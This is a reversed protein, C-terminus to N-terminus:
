RYGMVLQLLKKRYYLSLYVVGFYVRAQPVLIWM